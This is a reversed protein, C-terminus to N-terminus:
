KRGKLLHAYEPIVDFCPCVKVWESPEVVGDQDRDPSLDRHGVIMRLRYKEVAERTLELMTRKQAPTRTDKAKGNKDLGGIYSFGLSGTNHGAVHAGLESDDRGQEWSGDLHIIKHYGIKKFGRAKHM